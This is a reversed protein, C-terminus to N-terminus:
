NAFPNKYGNYPNVDAKFPNTNEVGNTISSQVDGVKLQQSGDQSPINKQKFSLFGFVAVVLIIIILVAWVINKKNSM